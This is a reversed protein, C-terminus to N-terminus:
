NSSQARGEISHYFVFNLIVIGALLVVLAPATASIAAIFFLALGGLVIVTFLFLLAFRLLLAVPNKSTWVLILIAAIALWLVHSYIEQIIPNSFPIRYGIKELSSVVLALGAFVWVAHKLLPLGAPALPDSAPDTSNRGSVVAFFEKWHRALYACGVILTAFAAASILAFFLVAPWESDLGHADAVSSLSLFLISLGMGGLVYPRKTWFRSDSIPYSPRHFQGTALRGPLNNKVTLYYILVFLFGVLACATGLPYKAIGSTQALM